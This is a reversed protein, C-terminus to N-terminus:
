VMTYTKGSGTQGYAFICVNYGDLVSRVFPQIDSYVEVADDMTSDFYLMLTDVHCSFILFIYYAYVSLMICFRWSQIHSVRGHGLRFFHHTYLFLGQTSAPGFVKNFKFSRLADKGEKSPNAVVLDNEGIHDVISQKEKKGLLFPRIRCYVRINGIYFFNHSNM